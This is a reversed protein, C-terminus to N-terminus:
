MFSEQQVLAELGGQKSGLSCANAYVFKLQAARVETSTIGVDKALCSCIFTRFLYLLLIFISEKKWHNMVM